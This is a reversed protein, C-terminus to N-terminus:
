GMREMTHFGSTMSLFRFYTVYQVAKLSSQTVAV